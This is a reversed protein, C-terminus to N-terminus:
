QLRQSTRMRSSCDLPASVAKRRIAGDGPARHWHHAIANGGMADQQDGFLHRLLEFRRARDGWRLQPAVPWECCSCGIQNAWLIGASGKSTGFKKNISLSM